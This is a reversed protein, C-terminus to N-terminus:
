GSGLLEAVHTLASRLDDAYRLLTHDFPTGGIRLEAVQDEEEKCASSSSRL